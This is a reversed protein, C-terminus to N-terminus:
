AHFLIAMVKDKSIIPRLILSIFLSIASVLIFITLHNDLIFINTRGIVFAVAVVFYYHILYISVGTSRLMPHTGGTKRIAIAVISIIVLASFPMNTHPTIM